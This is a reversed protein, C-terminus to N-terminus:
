QHKEQGGRGGRWFSISSRLASFSRRFDLPFEVGWAVGALDALGGDSVELVEDDDERCDRPRERLLRLMVSVMMDPSYVSLDPTTQCTRCLSM